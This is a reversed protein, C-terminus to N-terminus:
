RIESSPRHSVNIFLHDHGRLLNSSRKRLGAEINGTSLRQVQGMGKEFLVWLDRLTAGKDEPFQLVVKTVSHIVSPLYGQFSPGQSIDFPFPKGQLFGHPAFSAEQGLDGAEQM